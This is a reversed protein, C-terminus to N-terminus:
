ARRVFRVVLEALAKPDRLPLMHDTGEMTAIEGKPLWSALRSAVDQAIQVSAGGSVVLSPQSIPAADKATFSWRLVSPAEERFFFESEKQARSLADPGLAAEIVERYDVGCVAAMFGNFADGVAGSAASEFLAEFIPGFLSRESETLLSGGIAPEYLVLSRVRDPRAAALEVAIMASSSHAVVHAAVDLADLLVACHAAHQSIDIPGTATPPVGYGARRMRIVRFDALAACDALPLFWDSFVGAHVLLLPAGSGRDEYGIEGGPVGLTEM